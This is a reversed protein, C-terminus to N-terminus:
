VITHAFDEPFNNRFQSLFGYFENVRTSSNLPVHGPRFDDFGIM